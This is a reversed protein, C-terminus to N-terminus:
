RSQQPKDSTPLLATTDKNTWKSPPPPPPYEQEHMNLPCPLLNDTQIYTPQSDTQIAKQRDSTRGGGGGREREREREREDMNM